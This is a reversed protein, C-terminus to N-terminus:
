LSVEDRTMLRMGDYECTIVWGDKRSHAIEARLWKGKSLKPCPTYPASVVPLAILELVRDEPKDGGITAFIALSLAAAMLVYERKRPTFM